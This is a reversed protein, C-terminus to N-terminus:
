APEVVAKGARGSDQRDLGGRGHLRQAFAPRFRRRLPDHARDRRERSHGPHIGGAQGRPRSEAHAGLARSQRRASPGHLEAARADHPAPVPLRIGSGGGDGEDWAIELNQRAKNAAWWTEAVIAVGDVLGNAESGGRVEFADRVGPLVKIADTNSHLLKGGFVPCKQFVAYLMGPVTVDIGFLPKGTVIAPNDVSRLSRGIVKFDRAEKLTVADLDPPAIAAAKAALSGYNASRGSEDHYIVGAATRCENEPVSWTQAAAAILMQRGAAGVRRLPDWNLPTAMSGGAFQRGYKATDLMAQEIRVSEWDVDLEEAILMPLMTKVGQGIEPNKAIITVIGDPAIRVYANLAPTTTTSALSIAARVASPLVAQLLFGGGAVASAKLFARRSTVSRRTESRETELLSTIM